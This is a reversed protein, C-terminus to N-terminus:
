YVAQKLVSLPELHHADDWYIIRMELNPWDTIEAEPLLWQADQRRVLQALTQVGYFLGVANNATLAIEQSKLSLHYAQEALGPKNRDTADGITVSGPAISIRIVGSQSRVAKNVALTLHFREALQEKLSEVAVEGADIGSAIVLQWGDALPFDRPGLTVKQPAPLLTYGRATLPSLTEAQASRLPCLIVLPIVTCGQGFRKLYNM